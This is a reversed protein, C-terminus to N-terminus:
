EMLAEARFPKLPGTVNAQEPSGAAAVQEKLGFGSAGALLPAVAVSCIAVAPVVAARPPINLCLPNANRAM